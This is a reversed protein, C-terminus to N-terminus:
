RCNKTNRKSLFTNSLGSMALWMTLFFRLACVAQNFYSWSVQREQVLFVQYTHIHEPTLLHPAKNFYAAFNKMHSIYIRITKPSFGRVKMIVMMEERTYKKM